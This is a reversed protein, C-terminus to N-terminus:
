EGLAKRLYWCEMRYAIACERWCRRATADEAREHCADAILEPNIGETPMPQEEECAFQAIECARKSADVISLDNSM